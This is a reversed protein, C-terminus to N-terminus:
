ALGGPTFFDKEEGNLTKGDMWNLGCYATERDKQDICIYYDGKVKRVEMALTKYFVLSGDDITDKIEKLTM